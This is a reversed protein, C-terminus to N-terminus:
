AAAERSLLDSIWAIGKATFRAQNYAHGNRDSVGTKIEFRKADLHQAYPTLTGCSLYMIAKQLIFFKFANEKIKLLKAAQRFSFSGEAKVFEDVFEAKPELECILATKQVNENELASIKDAQDAALRLAESLTQPISFPQQTAQGELEALRALVAIRLKASYGTILTQTELKPLMFCKQQRGLADLYIEEFSLPDQNLEKLMSDIDRLVNDHRKNTLKAIEVSSMTIKKILQNM